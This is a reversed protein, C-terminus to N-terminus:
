GPFGPLISVIIERSRLNGGAIMMEMEANNSATAQPPAAVEAGEDVARCDVGSKPGGDGERDVGESLAVDRM